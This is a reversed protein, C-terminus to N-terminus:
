SKENSDKIKAKRDREEEVKIAKLLLAYITVAGVLAYPSLRLASCGGTKRYLEISWIVIGTVPMACFFLFFVVHLLDNGLGAVIKEAEAQGWKRNMKAKLKGVLKVGAYTVGLVLLMYGAREPIIM